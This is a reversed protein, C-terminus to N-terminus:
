ELESFYNFIKELHEKPYCNAKEKEKIKILKLKQCKFNKDKNYNFSVGKMRRSKM